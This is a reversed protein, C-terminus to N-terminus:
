IKLFEKYKDTNDTIEHSDFDERIMAITANVDELTEEFSYDIEYPYCFYGYFFKNSARHFYLINDTILRHGRIVEEFENPEIGFTERIEYAFM